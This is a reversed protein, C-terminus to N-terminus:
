KSILYYLYSGMFVLTLATVGTLIWSLVRIIKDMLEEDTLM